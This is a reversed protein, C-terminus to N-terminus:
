GRKQRESEERAQLAYVSGVSWVLLVIEWPPTWDSMGRAFGLVLGAFVSLRAVGRLHCWSGCPPPSWALVALTALGAFICGLLYLSHLM